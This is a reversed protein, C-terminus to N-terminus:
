FIIYGVDSNSRENANKSDPGLAKSTPIGTWSCRSDLIFFSVGYQSVPGASAVVPTRTTVTAPTIFPGPGGSLGLGYGHWRPAHGLLVM